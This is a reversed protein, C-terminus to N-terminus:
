LIDQRSIFSYENFAFTVSYLISGNASYDLSTTQNINIPFCQKINIFNNPIGNSMEMFVYIDTSYDQFESYNSGMKTSTTGLLNGVAGSIGGTQNVSNSIVDIWRTFTGTVVQNEYEEFVIEFQYDEYTTAMPIKRKRGFFYVESTEVVKKPLNISKVNFALQASKKANDVISGIGLPIKSSLGTDLGKPLNPIVMHWNFQTQPLAWLNVADKTNIHFPTVHSFIEKISM